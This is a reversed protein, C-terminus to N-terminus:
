SWFERFMDLFYRGVADASDFKKETKDLSFWDGYMDPNDFRRRIEMYAPLPSQRLQANIARENDSFRKLYYTKITDGDLVLVGIPIGTIHDGAEEGRYSHISYWYHGDNRQSEEEWEKQTMRVDSWEWEYSSESAKSAELTEGTLFDHLVASLDPMQEMRTSEMRALEKAADKDGALAKERLRSAKLWDSDAETFDMNIVLRGESDYYFPAEAM